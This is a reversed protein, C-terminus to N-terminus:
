VFWSKIEKNLKSLPLDKFEQYYVNKSGTNIEIEPNYYFLKTLYEIFTQRSIIMQEILENNIIFLSLGFNFFKFKYLFVTISIRFIIINLLINEGNQKKNYHQM